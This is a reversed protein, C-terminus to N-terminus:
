SGFQGRAIAKIFPIGFMFLGLGMFGKSVNTLLDARREDGPRVLPTSSTVTNRSGAGSGGLSSQMNQEMTSEARRAEAENYRKVLALYAVGFTFAGGVALKTDTMGSDSAVCAAALLGTGFVAASAMTGHGFGKNYSHKEAVRKWTDSSAGGEMGMVPTFGSVMSVVLLMLLLNKNFKFMSSEEM